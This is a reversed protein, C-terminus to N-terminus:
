EGVFAVPMTFIVSVPKGQQTGPQMKPILKIVRKVEQVLQPYKSAAKIDTVKGENNIKFMVNVREVGQIGLDEALDTNIKRNVLRHIKKEFCKKKRANNKEKECGPFIPAVSIVSFPVTIPEEDLDDEVTEESTFKPEVVPKEIVKEVKKEPEPLKEEIIQIEEQIIKPPEIVKPPPPPLKPKPIPPADLFQTIPIVNDVFDDISTEKEATKIVVNRTVTTKNILLYTIGLIIILGIQFFITSYQSYRNLKQQTM